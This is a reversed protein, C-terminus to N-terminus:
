SYKEGTVGTYYDYLGELVAMARKLQGTLLLYVSQLFVHRLLVFGLFLGWRIGGFEGRGLFLRNRTTYYDRFWKGKNSKTDGSQDHWAIATPLHMITFGSSRARFSYEADESYVFYAEDLGGIQKSVEGKILQCCGTAFQIELPEARAPTAEKGMGSHVLDGFANMVGGDYWIINDRKGDLIRPTVIGCHPSSDLTRKLLALTDTAVRADDDIFLISGYRHEMAWRLGENRGKALGVNKGLKIFTVSPFAGALSEASGDTSGNDVVVVDM